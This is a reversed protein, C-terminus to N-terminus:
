LLTVGTQRADSTVVHGRLTRWTPPSPCRSVEAWLPRTNTWQASPDCGFFVTMADLPTLANLCRSRHSRFVPSQHRGATPALRLVLIPFTAPLLVLPSPSVVVDRALGHPLIHGYHRVSFLAGHLPPQHRSLHPQEAAEETTLRQFWGCCLILEVKWSAIVM